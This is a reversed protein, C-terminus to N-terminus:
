SSARTQLTFQFAEKDIPLGEVPIFYRVPLKTINEHYDSILPNNWGNELGEVLSAEYNIADDLRGSERFSKIADPLTKAKVRDWHRPSKSRIRAVIRGDISITGRRRKYLLYWRNRVRNLPKVIYINGQWSYLNFIKMM